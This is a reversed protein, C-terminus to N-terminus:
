CKNATCINQTPLHLPPYQTKTEFEKVNRLSLLVGASGATWLSTYSDDRTM